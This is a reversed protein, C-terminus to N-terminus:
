WVPIEKRLFVACSDAFSTYLLIVQRFIAADLGNVGTDRETNRLRSKVVSQYSARQVFSYTFITLNRARIGM